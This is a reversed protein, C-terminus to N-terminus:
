AFQSFGSEIMALYALDRPLGREVLVPTIRPLYRYSRELWIKFDHRGTGQYFRIWNKVKSNYIVPLDFYPGEASAVERDIDRHLPPPALLTSEAAHAPRIFLFITVPALLWAM